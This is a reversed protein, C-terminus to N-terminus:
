SSEQLSWASPTPFVNPMVPTPTLFRIRDLSGVMPGWLVEDQRLHSRPACLPHAAQRHCLRSLGVDSRCGRYFQASAKVSKGEVFSNETVHRNM